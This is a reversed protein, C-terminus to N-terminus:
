LWRAPPYSHHVGSSHWRRSLISNLTPVMARADAKEMPAGSAVFDNQMDIVLLVASSPHITEVQYPM